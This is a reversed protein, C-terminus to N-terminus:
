WGSRLAGSVLLAILVVKVYSECYFSVQSNPDGLLNCIHPVIKSLTLSQAGSRPIFFLLASTHIASCIGVVYRLNAPPESKRM